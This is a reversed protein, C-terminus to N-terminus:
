VHDTMVVDMGSLDLTAAYGVITEIARGKAEDASVGMRFRLQLGLTPDAADDLVEILRVSIEPPETLSRVSSAVETILADRLDITPLRIIFLWNRSYDIPETM